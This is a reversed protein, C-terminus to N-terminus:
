LRRISYNAAMFNPVTMWELTLPLSELLLHMAYGAGALVPYSSKDGM